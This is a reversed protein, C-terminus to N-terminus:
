SELDSKTQQYERMSLSSLCLSPPFSLAVSSLTQPFSLSLFDLCFRWNLNALVVDQVGRIYKQVQIDIKEGWQPLDSLTLYWDRYCHKLLEDVSDFAQQAPMGTIRHIAVLNHNVGEAQLNYDM